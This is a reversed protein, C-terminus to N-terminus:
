LASPLSTVGRRAVVRELGFLMLALLVAWQRLETPSFRQAKAAASSAAPQVPATAAGSGPVVPQSVLLQRPALQRLDYSDAHSNTADSAPRLLDLLLAPLAPSEPFGSWAPQLQTHLRYSYGAGVRQQTLVPRGTADQWVLAASALHRTTDLRSLSIAPGAPQTLALQTEVAAGQGRAEQWLRNGRQAPAQWTAPVPQESLWFLWDPPTEFRTAPGAATLELRQALGLSAARLAARLYRASETHAADAYLAVRLPKTQVVVAARGPQQLTAEANSAPQYRLGPLGAVTLSSASTPRPVKIATFRTGTEQTSGVLIQLTDPHTLAAEALWVASDPLPVPQWRVTPPLAVRPGSFHHYATGSLIRLPQGPFSDAAQRARAWYNDPSRLAASGFLNTDPRGSSRVSQLRAALQALSDPHTWTTDSVRRFGPAFLRLDYGQRRLSDVTPRLAPLVEPGLAEPALLVLGQVSRAPLPRLWYPGAVAAALAMLVAMRLLLLLLQELRLNRLRRNAAAALWRLSGVQVTRGPRRNWLHIAVPVALGLLALM